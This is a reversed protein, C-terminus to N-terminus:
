NRVHRIKKECYGKMRRHGMPTGTRNATRSCWVWTCPVFRLSSARAM